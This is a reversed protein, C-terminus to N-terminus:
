SLDTILGLAAENKIRLGWEILILRKEADGTKALPTQFYDRLITMEAFEPDLLLCDQNAGSRMFLNPVAQLEGFDSLYIDVSSTVTTGKNGPAQYRQAAIGPFTSFVMKQKPGMMAISPKAGATYCLAMTNKLMTETFVRPVGDNRPDIPINTYVPNTGTAEKDVNTKITALVSGTKRPTTNSGADAGQNSLMISEIDRKLEASRKSMVFGLEDNSRGAKTVKQNTGSVIARKSSIQVYNGMRVTPTVAPYATADYDEGEIQANALDPAQLADTQFEFFTQTAKPGRGIATTFPTSTPSIRSIIDSLDERVGVTNRVTLTVDKFAM